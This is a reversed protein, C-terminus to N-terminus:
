KERAKAAMAMMMASTVNGGGGVKLLASPNRLRVMGEDDSRSNLNFGGRSTIYLPIGKSTEIISMIEKPYIEHVVEPDSLRTVLWKGDVGGVIVCKNDAVIVKDGERCPIIKSIDETKIKEIQGDILVKSRNCTDPGKFIGFKGAFKGSVVECDSVLEM